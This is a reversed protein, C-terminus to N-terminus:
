KDFNDIVDRHDGHDIMGRLNFPHPLLSPSCSRRGTRQARTASACVDPCYGSIRNEAAQLPLPTCVKGLIGARKPFTSLKDKMFADRASEVEEVWLKSPISGEVLLQHSANGVLRRSPLELLDRTLQFGRVTDNVKATAFACVDTHHLRKDAPRYANVVVTIRNLAKALGPHFRLHCGEGPERCFMGLVEIDGAGKLCKLVEGVDILEHPGDSTANTRAAADKQRHGVPSSEGPVVIFWQVARRVVDAPPSAGLQQEKGVPEPEVQGLQSEFLWVQGVDFQQVTLLDLALDAAHEPSRYRARDPARVELQHNPWRTVGQQRPM